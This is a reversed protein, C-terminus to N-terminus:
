GAVLAATRERAADRVGDYLARIVDDTDADAPYRGAEVEDISAFTLADLKVGLARGIQRAQRIRAEHLEQRYAEIGARHTCTGATDCCAFDTSM